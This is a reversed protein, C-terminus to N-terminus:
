DDNPSSGLDTTRIDGGGRHKERGPDEIRKADAGREAADIKKVGGPLMAFQEETLVGQLQTVYEQSIRDRDRLKERVPDDSRVPAEGNAQRVVNQAKERLQEPEHERILQVLEDTIQAMAQNHQAVIENIATLTEPSLDPLERAAKFMRSAPTPRFARAYAQERVKERFESALEAPLGQAIRETFQENVSRVAIHLDISSVEMQMYKDYDRLERTRIMESNSTTSHEKRRRLADDLAIEYETVIPDIESRVAPEINMSKLVAILDTSEGSLRGQNLLRERNLRREVAPWLQTQRQDLQSKLDEIFRNGLDERQKVWEDVPAFVMTLIKDPNDAANELEPRLNDLSARLNEVGSNFENLYDTLLTEVIISQTEDLQLGETFLVMDRTTFAPRFAEDFGSSALQAEARLSFGLTAVLLLLGLRAVRSKLPVWSALMTKEQVSSLDLRGARVRAAAPIPWDL